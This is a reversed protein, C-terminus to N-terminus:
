AHQAAEQAFRMDTRSIRLDNSYQGFQAIVASLGDKLAALLESLEPCEKKQTIDTWHMPFDDRFKELKKIVATLTRIMAPVDRQVNGYNDEALSRVALESLAYAANAYVSIEVYPSGLAAEALRRGFTQQFFPGIVPLALVRLWVAELSSQLAGPQIAQRQNPTMFRDAVKEAFKKVGPTWEEVPTKGPSTILNAVSAKVLSAKANPRPALVDGAKPPQAIRQRPQVPAAPAAPKAPAPALADIRRELSRITDLCIVSIQSWMPGDPRDIDEFISQRRATYDRAIFALEWM